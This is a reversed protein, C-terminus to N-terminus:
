RVRERTHLVVAPVLACFSAITLVTRVVNWAVWPGEFDDRVQALDAIRAPDGADKLDNNLPINLTGTVVFGIAYLALALGLWRFVESSGSRRAIVMAWIVLLPAGLFTLFFVPNEIAENIQQMADVFTRDDTNALGPMVSCAYAYFLGAILGMAVLAAGLVWTLRRDSM